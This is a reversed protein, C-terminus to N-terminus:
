GQREALLRARFEPNGLALATICAEVSLKLERSELSAQILPMLRRNGAEVLGECVRVRAPVSEKRLVQQLVAQATTDGGKLLAVAIDTYEILGEDSEDMRENLRGQLDSM